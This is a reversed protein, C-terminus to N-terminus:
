NIEHLIAEHESVIFAKKENVFHVKLSLGPLVYSGLRNGASDFFVAENSSIVAATNRYVEIADTGESDPLQKVEKGKENFFLLSNELAFVSGGNDFLGAALLESDFQKSWSLDLTQDYCFAELEGTFLVKQGAHYMVPYLGELEIGTIPSQNLSAGYLRIITSIHSSNMGLGYLIIQKNEGQEMTKAYYPYYDNIYLAGLQFGNEPSIAHITRKYGTQNATIFLLNSSTVEGFSIEEELNSGILLKGEKLVIFSKGDQEYVLAMKGNVQVVPQRLEHPHYWLEEGRSNMLRIDSETLLLLNDMYLKSQILQKDGLAFSNEVTGMHEEKLAELLKRPDLQEWNFAEATNGRFAFLVALIIGGAIILLL